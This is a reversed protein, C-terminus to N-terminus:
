VSHVWGTPELRERRGGAELWLGEAVCEGVKALGPIPAALLKRGDDPSVAFVLEFDEGDGLAHQLPTRGTTLSLARAADSIPIGDAFLAAGCGSEECIHNLDASLGDSIDCMARLEVTAHLALAEAVRPTFDLHRGLISGGLPGTVFVWDGPRAGSRRVPGRGTAEGFATVSIVLKGDWSNTDGGVVAV